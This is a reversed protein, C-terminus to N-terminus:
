PRLPAPIATRCAEAGLNGAIEAFQALAAQLDDMIEAALIDPAPLNASDELSLREFLAQDGRVPVGWEDDHYAAYDPTSGAWFCRRIGDAGTVIGTDPEASM